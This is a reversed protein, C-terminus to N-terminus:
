RVGGTVRDDIAATQPGAHRPGAGSRAPRADRSGVPSAVLVGVVDHEADACAETIGALEGATWGGASLVFLVGSEHEHDPMLPSDVSVGVLQFAPNGALADQAALDVLEEAARRAAEDGDPVVVLVRRGVPLQERLRACVRRYRVRRGAEDGATRPTPVDWRVDLGLLRRLWNWRGRAGTRDGGREVPVDVAGLVPSGVAATIERESRPRRGVRAAALHAVVATLLFLLAGGAILQVRTPPAQGTPRAAPGMVVLATKDDALEAKDLADVAEQLSTRLKSLETRAQVSEVTEGAGAADALEDIRRSTKTVLERLAGPRDKAKPDTPAGSIEAAFAVFDKAVQDSLLQAREPTEATGSIRIINGDAVEANVQKRLEKASVGAWGLTTNARDIVVSSTAIQAQTLLEREEWAGPLLVSASTTYRPPLLLATGQGVLAGLLTLLALLRRRRRIIRGVTVLRITDDSM